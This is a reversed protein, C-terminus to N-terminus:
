KTWLARKRTLPRGDASTRASRKNKLDNILRALLMADTPNCEKSESPKAHAMPDQCCEMKEDPKSKFSLQHHGGEQMHSKGGFTPELRSVPNSEGTSKSASETAQSEEDGDSLVNADEQDNSAELDQMVRQDAEEHPIAPYEQV